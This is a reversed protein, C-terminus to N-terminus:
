ELFILVTFNTPIENQSCWLVLREREDSIYGCGDDINIIYTQKKLPYISNDDHIFLNTIILNHIVEDVTTNYKELYNNLESDLPLFGGKIIMRNLASM